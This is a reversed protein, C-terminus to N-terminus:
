ILHDSWPGTIAFTIGPTQINVFLWRGDRSFTAGAWEQDRYDGKFGNREGQLVINNSAFTFLRGDPTLGLLRQPVTDSDECLLIGGRPSVTMNDPMNLTAEDPSEFILTLTEGRPDYQWVQGAKARGGSTATFYILDGAYFCGELRAFTTGGQNTGQRFVGLEDQTGPSHAREVDEIPVWDVDIPRGVTVGTRTDPTRKARLMWLTGGAALREREKPMFRYFGGTGRDETEYINGTVPDVAIAEHVFRGMAKLPVPPGTLESSAEFVWGHTQEYKVPKGKVLDGPGLVTEECSLWTGWPTPGGACNRITGSLSVCSELWCGASLDFTLETCGGAARRDYSLGPNGIPKGAATVEHNRCLTAVSEQERVVAMGDHLAPTKGGTTLDDGRWGFSLYRFGEPLQLLPLGTAEDKVPRLPGFGPSSSGNGYATRATFSQFVTPVALGSLLGLGHRILRRRSTHQPMLM